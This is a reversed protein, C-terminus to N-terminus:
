LGLENMCAVCYLSEPAIRLREIPIPEECERCIGYDPSDIKRYANRLRNLRKLAEDYRQFHLSQELKFNLHAVKDSPANGQEPYIAARITEIEEKASPKSRM